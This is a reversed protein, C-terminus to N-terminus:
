CVRKAESGLIQSETFRNEFDVRLVQLDESDQHLVMLEEENIKWNEIVKLRKELSMKNLHHQFGEIFQIFLSKQLPKDDKRISPLACLHPLSGSSKAGSELKPLSSIFAGFIGLVGFLGFILLKLFM